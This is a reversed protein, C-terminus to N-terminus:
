STTIEEHRLWERTVVASYRLIIPNCMSLVTYYFGALVGIAQVPIEAIDIGADSVLKNRPFNRRNCQLAVATQSIPESLSQASAKHQQEPVDCQLLVIWDCWVLEPQKSWWWRDPQNTVLTVSNALVPETSLLVREFESVLCLSLARTCVLISYLIAEDLAHMTIGLTWKTSAQQICGAESARRVGCVCAVPVKPSSVPRSCLVTGKELCWGAQM